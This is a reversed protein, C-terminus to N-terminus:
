SGSPLNNPTQLLWESNRLSHKSLNHVHAYKSLANTVEQTVDPPRNQASTDCHDWAPLITDSLHKFAGSARCLLQVAFNLKEDKTKRSSDSITREYEYRGLSAVTSRALNSFAFGYTLLTFALDAHLSPVSQRPSSNFLTASLTSRWSFVLSM